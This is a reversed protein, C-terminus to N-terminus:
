PKKLIIIYISIIIFNHVKNLLWIVNKNVNKSTSPDFSAQLFSYVKKIAWERKLFVKLYRLQDVFAQILSSTLGFFFIFYYHTGRRELFTSQIGITLKCLYRIQM